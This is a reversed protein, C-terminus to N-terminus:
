KYLKRDHETWTHIVNFQIPIVQAYLYSTPQEFKIIPDLEEEGDYHHHYCLYALYM